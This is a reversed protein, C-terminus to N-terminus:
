ANDNEGKGKLQQLANLIKPPVPVGLRAGNELISLGENGILYFSMATRFIWNGNGILRDVMVAVILYVLMVAKKKIGIIGIKSSLNQESHGALVGTAYDLAMFIALVLLVTDWGGFIYTLATGIAAIVSNLTQKMEKEGKM